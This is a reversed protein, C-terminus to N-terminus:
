MSRSSLRYKQVTSQFHSQYTMYTFRDHGATAPHLISKIYSFLIGPKLPWRLEAPCRTHRSIQPSTHLGVSLFSFSQAHYTALNPEVTSKRWTELTLHIKLLGMFLADTLHLSSHELFFFEGLKSFPHVLM